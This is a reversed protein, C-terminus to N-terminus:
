SGEPRKELSTRVLFAMCVFFFSGVKDTEVLDNIILFADIVITCLLLAMVRLKQSPDKLRHYLNEGYLLVGFSLALFFFLGPFGQEVLTMLYYSHIGSREPNDSVYTQFSTVTYAKYFNVFNGPGFGLWPEEASMFVGAAWRYVREMTSIDEMKYTAEILNDFQEHSITRDYNPAYELYRNQEAIWLFGILVALLSAGLVYRLLKWRIIFWATAAIMLAVYAARTYSLYVGVLLIGLGGIIAWWKLSFPRYWFRAFWVFPVFLALSAAYNVHNRQYPHLVKHIDGYSFGYAAHRLITIGATLLLPIFVLWFLRRYDPEKRILYLSVFFFTGVYWLKALLFKISVVPLQSTLTTIFIWGLHLLLLITIPHRIVRADLDQLRQLGILLGMGALGIILPETPLDTGLGGPLYVETSLPVLAWLLFYVGKVDLVAWYLFLALLPIGSLWYWQSLTAAFLSLLTLGGFAWLQQEVGNKQDWVQQLCKIM